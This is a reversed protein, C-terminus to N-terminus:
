PMNEGFVNSFTRSGHSLTAPTITLMAAKWATSGPEIGPGRVKKDDFFFAGSQAMWSSHLGTLGLPYPAGVTVTTFLAFFFDSSHTHKVRLFLSCRPSFPLFPFSFSHAPEPQREMGPNQAEQTFRCPVYCTWSAICVKKPYLMRKIRGTALKKNSFLPPAPYRDRHRM